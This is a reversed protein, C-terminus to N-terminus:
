AEGTREHRWRGWPKREGDGTRRLRSREICAAGPSERGGRRQEFGRGQYGGGRM